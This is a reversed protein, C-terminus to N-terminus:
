QLVETQCGSTMLATLNVGSKALNLGPVCAWGVSVAVCIALVCLLANFSDLQRRTMLDPQANQDFQVTESVTYRRIIHLM